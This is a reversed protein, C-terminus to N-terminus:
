EDCSRLFLSAVHGGFGMSYTLASDVKAERAKGLVFDLGQFNQDLADGGGTQATPPLFGKKMGLLTAVIEIVGSAGLMHGTMSKTSSAPIQSLRDGFLSKLQKIEYSDGAKTATGHLSIYSVDKLTANARRLCSALNNKLTSGEPNFNMVDFSDNGFSHSVIEGYIKAGRKVAADLPELILCGAGEGVQFGDRTQSFPRMTTKSYAGMKWYGALPLPCISADSAGAICIKVEGRRIMEAAEGVSYTGTACATVYCRAPGKIRHQRAIWQSAMNPIFSSYIKAGLLASARKKFRDIGECYSTLGGKSSSMVIGIDFPDFSKLDISADELAQDLSGIAFRIFPDLIRTSRPAQFDKIEFARKVPFEEVPFRTIPGEGVFGERLNKEFTTLDNGIPSVVGMGTVVVRCGNKSLNEM